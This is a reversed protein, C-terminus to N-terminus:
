TQCAGMRLAFQIFEAGHQLVGPMAAFLDGKKVNRSDVCINFVYPDDNVGASAVLGLQSLTKGSPYEEAM